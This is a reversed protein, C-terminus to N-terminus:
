YQHPTYASSRTPSTIYWRWYKYVVGKKNRQTNQPIEGLLLVGCCKAPPAGGIKYTGVNRHFYKKKISCSFLWSIFLSNNIHPSTGVSKCKRLNPFV